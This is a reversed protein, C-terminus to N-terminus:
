PVVVLVAFLVLWVGDLFHWYMACYRLGAHSRQSYRGRFANISVIVLPILGAVVHAAHLGTLVYFLFAYLNLTMPMNAAVLAFWIVTQCALFLFGLLTTSLMAARLRKQRGTRASHLAWQVTGSSVLLIVTSLWLARPLRPMGPPPWVDAAVRIIAYGILSAAFLVGLSILFLTMGLTGPSWGDPRGFENRSDGESRRDGAPSSILIAPVLIM